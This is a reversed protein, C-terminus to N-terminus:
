HTWQLGVRGGYVDDGDGKAFGVGFGGSIAVRDGETVFNNGLVGMLSLGLANADEFAGWNAAMGFRENGTLDPNELSMALAVGAIAEDTRAGVKDIRTNLAAVDAGSALGLESFTYAALDGSANSTVLHTPSGQASKSASSTIGPTTYTNSATGFVQQNPRTVTAGNGFAASNTYVASANPGVATSNGGTASSFDGFAASGSSAVASTGAAISGTALAGQGIAIANTGAARSDVGMAIAGTVSALANTGIAVTNSANIGNGTDTGIAINNSGTVNQGANDGYAANSDGTVDQGSGVGSATNNNGNVENGSALGMATNQSGMVDNGSNYGNTTNHTGTVRRGSFNGTATNRDGIVEQGAAVGVATNESGDVTLGASNGVATNQLNGADSNSGASNGISTGGGVAEANTGCAVSGAGAATAGGGPDCVFQAQAPPPAAFPLGVGLVIGGWGALWLIRGKRANSSM